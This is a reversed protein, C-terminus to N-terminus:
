VKNTNGHKQGYKISSKWINGYVFKNEMNEGYFYVNEKLTYTM